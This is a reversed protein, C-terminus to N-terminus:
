SVGVIIIWKMYMKLFLLDVIAVNTISDCIICKM